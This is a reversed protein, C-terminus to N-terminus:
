IVQTVPSSPPCHKSLKRSLSPLQPWLRSCQQALWTSLSVLFPISLGLLCCWSVSLWLRLFSFPLSSCSPPTWDHYVSATSTDTLRNRYTDQNCFYFLRTLLKPEEWTGWCYLIQRGICSIHTQDRPQSSRSSFSISFWQLIRAQSIRHVSSGLPSCFPRMPRLSNSTVSCSLVCNVVQNYDTRSKLRVQYLTSLVTIIWHFPVHCNRLM